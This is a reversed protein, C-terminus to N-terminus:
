RNKLFHLNEFYHETLKPFLHHSYFVGNINANKNAMFFLPKNDNKYKRVQNSLIEEKLSFLKFPLSYSKKIASLERTSLRDSIIIVNEFGVGVGFDKLQELDGELCTRCDDKSFMYIISQNNIITNPISFTEGCEDVVDVDLSLLSSKINLNLISTLYKIKEENISNEAILKSINKGKSKNHNLLMVNIILLGITFVGLLATTPNVKKINKM